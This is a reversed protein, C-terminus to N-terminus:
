WYLITKSNKEKFFATVYVFPFYFLELKFHQENDDGFVIGM